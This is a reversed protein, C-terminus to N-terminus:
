IIKGKNLINHPDYKEKLMKIKQSFVFPAHKKKLLGIGHESAAKGNVIKLFEFMLNLEEQNRKFHPHVIGYGIHGYCPIGKQNLWELFKIMNERPIQPDEIRPYEKEVLVSYINERLKWLDYDDGLKYSGKQGQYRVLLYEKSKMDALVAAHRNIYEIALADNDNMLENVKNMLSTLDNFEFLDTSMDDNREKLKLKAEVIIGCCGETGVFEKSEIEDFNFVKATGDMITLGKVWDEVKGNKPSLMGASNTAIMGGITAAAHSGPQVPFELGYNALVNNLDDLVVGAEAIVTKEDPHIAKIKAMKSTDIVLANQPVAGGVLSTGGGRMTILIKERTAIRMLKQLEDINTPWCVAIADGRITSADTSYVVREPPSDTAQCAQRLSVISYPM